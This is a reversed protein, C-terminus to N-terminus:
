PNQETLRYGIGRLTKIGIGSPALKKRLRSINVELTNESMAEGASGLQACFFDKRSVSDGNEVLSLLIQYETPTLMLRETGIFGDLLTRDVTIPGFSVRTNDASSNRRLLARVRAELEALDFPKTLYDDAGANLGYLKNSLSDRATTIIVPISSKKQRIKSLVEIGDLGPLGLDLILLDFKSNELIGEVESGSQTCEVSFGSNKLWDSMTSSLVRDDEAILLQPQTSMTM